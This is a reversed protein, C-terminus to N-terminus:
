LAVLRTWGANFRSGLKVRRQISLVAAFVIALKQLLATCCLEMRLCGIEQFLQLFFGGRDAPRSVDDRLNFLKAFGSQIEHALKLNHDRRRTRMRRRRRLERSKDIM